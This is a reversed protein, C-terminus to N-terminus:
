WAYTETIEGAKKQLMRPVMIYQLIGVLLVAAAAIAICLATIRSQLSFSRRKSEM